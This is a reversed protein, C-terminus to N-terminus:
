LARLGQLVELLIREEPLHGVSAQPRATILGQDRLDGLLIRLVNVSLGSESALDVLPTSAQCIDLIRLHEPTLGAARDFASPATRIITMLDFEPGTPRTRGRTITYPRLLPGYEQESM